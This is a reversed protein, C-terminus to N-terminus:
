LDVRRDGWTSLKAQLFRCTDYVNKRAAGETMGLASSIQAYSARELFRMEFIRRRPPPLFELVNRLQQGLTALDLQHDIDATDSGAPEHVLEEFRIRHQRRKIDIAIHKATVMLFGVAKQSIDEPDHPAAEIYRKFAESCVEEADNPNRLIYFASLYVRRAHVKWLAGLLERRDPM